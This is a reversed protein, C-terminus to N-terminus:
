GGSGGHRRRTTGRAFFWWRRGFRKSQRRGVFRGARRLTWVSDRCGKEIIAIVNGDVVMSGFVVVVVVVVFVVVATVDIM